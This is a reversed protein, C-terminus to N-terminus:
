RIAVEENHQSAGDVRQREGRCVSANGGTTPNTADAVRHHEAPTGGREGQLWQIIHLVTKRFRRQATPVVRSTRMTRRCVGGVPM